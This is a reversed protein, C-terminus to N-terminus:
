KLNPPDYIYGHFTYDGDSMAEVVTQLEIWDSHTVLAETTITRTTPEQPCTYEITAWAAIPFYYTPGNKVTCHAYWHPPAATLHLINM